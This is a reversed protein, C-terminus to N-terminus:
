DKLLKYAKDNIKILYVGKAFDGVYISERDKMIKDFIIEGSMSIIKINMKENNEVNLFIHNQAPNPFFLIKEDEIEYLGSLVSSEYCGLDIADGVIRPNGYFDFFINAPMFSNTGANIAPSNNEVEFMSAAKFMPSVNNADIEESAFTVIAEATKNNIAGVGDGLINNELIVTESNEIQNGIWASSSNGWVISNRITISSPLTTATPNNAIAGGTGYTLNIKPYADGLVYDRYADFAGVGPRFTAWSFNTINQTFMDAFILLDQISGWSQPISSLTEGAECTRFFSEIDVGFKVGTEDCARKIAEYYHPLVVKYDTQESNCRGACDQLYLNDLDPTKEFISKFFEYTMDAPRGRWLAPAIAVMFKKEKSKLYSAVGQIYNALLTRNAEPWWGLWAGDHFEESLYWGAMAPSDAFREYLEDIVEKNRDLLNTYAAADGRNEPFTGHNVGLVIKMGTTEAAAFAQEVINNEHVIWSLKSGTYFAMPEDVNYRVAWQIMLTDIGVERYANFTSTWDYDDHTPTHPQVFISSFKAKREVKPRYSTLQEMADLYVVGTHPEKSANVIDIQYGNIRKLNLTKNQNATEASFWSYPIILRQWGTTKLISDNEYTFVDMNENSLNFNDNQQLLSIKFNDETGSSHILIAIGLPHYSLDSRYNSWIKKLRFVESALESRNGMFNYDVKFSKRGQFRFDADFTTTVQSEASYSIKESTMNYFDSDFDYSNIYKTNGINSLLELVDAHKNITPTFYLGSTNETFTSNVIQVNSESNAVAGGSQKAYNNIFGCNILTTNGRTSYIAGGENNPKEDCRNNIFLCNSIVVGLGATRYNLFASGNSGNARGNQFVFGDILTNTSASAASGLIEYKLEGDLVTKKTYDQVGDNLRFGGKIKLDKKRIVVKAGEKFTGESMHIEDGDIVQTLAHTLTHFATEWSGGDNNDNGGNELPKVYFTMQSFTSISTILLIVILSTLRKM